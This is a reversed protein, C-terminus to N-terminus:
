PKSRVWGGRQTIWNAFNRVIFYAVEVVLNKIWLLIGDKTLYKIAQLYLYFPMFLLKFLQNNLASGNKKEVPPTGIVGPSSQLPDYIKPFFFIPAM